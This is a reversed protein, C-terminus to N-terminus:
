YGPNQIISPNLYLENMPIPLLLEYEECAAKAQAVGLRKMAAWVGYLHTSSYWTDALGETDGSAERYM